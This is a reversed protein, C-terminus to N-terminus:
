ARRGRGFVRRWRETPMKTEHNVSSQDFMFMWHPHWGLMMLNLAVKNERNFEAARRLINTYGDGEIGGDLFQYSPALKDILCPWGRGIGFAVSDGWVVALKREPDIPDGKLGDENIEYTVAGEADVFLINPRLALREWDFYLTKLADGGQPTLHVT